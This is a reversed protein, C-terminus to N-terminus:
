FVVSIEIECLLILEGERSVVASRGLANVAPICRISTM